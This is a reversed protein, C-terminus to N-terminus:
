EDVPVPQDAISKYKKFFSAFASMPLTAVLPTEAPLQHLCLRPPPPARVCARM